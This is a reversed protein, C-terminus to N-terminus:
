LGKPSAAKGVASMPLPGKLTADQDKEAVLDWLWPLLEVVGEQLLIGAAVGAVEWM